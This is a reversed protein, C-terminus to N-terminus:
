LSFWNVTQKFCSREIYSGPFLTWHQRNYVCMMMQMVACFIPCGTDMNIVRDVCLYCLFTRPRLPCTRAAVPFSRDGDCGSSLGSARPPGIPASFNERKLPRCADTPLHWIASRNSYSPIATWDWSTSYLRYQLGVLIPQDYVPKAHFCSM